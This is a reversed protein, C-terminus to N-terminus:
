PKTLWKKTEAYTTSSCREVFYFKNRGSMYCIGDAYEWIEVPMYAKKGAERFLPDEKYGKTIKVPKECFTAAEQPSTGGISMGSKLPVCGNPGKADVIIDSSFDTSAGIRAQATIATISLILALILKM